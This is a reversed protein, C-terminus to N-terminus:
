NKATVPLHSIEFNDTVVVFFYEGKQDEQFLFKGKPVKESMYALSKLLEINKESMLNNM